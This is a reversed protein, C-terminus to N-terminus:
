ETAAAYLIMALYLAASLIAHIAAVRLLRPVLLRFLVGVAVLYVLAGLPATIANWNGAGASIVLYALGVAVLMRAAATELPGFRLKEFYAVIAIAILGTITHVATLYLALAGAFFWHESNIASVITTAIALGAGVLALTKPDGGPKVFTAGPPNADVTGDQDANELPEGKLAREVEPDHELDADEPLDDVFSKDSLKPKGQPASPNVPEPALEYPSVDTAAPEVRNPAKNSPPQSGDGPPTPAPQASDDKPQTEDAM